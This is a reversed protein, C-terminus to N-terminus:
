FTERNSVIEIEEQKVPSEEWTMHSPDFKNEDSEGFISDDEDDVKINSAIPELPEDSTFLPDVFQISLFLFTRKILPLAM